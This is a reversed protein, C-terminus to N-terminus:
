RVSIARPGRPAEAFIVEKGRQVQLSQLQDLGAIHDSLSNGQAWAPRLATLALAASATTLIQRRYM